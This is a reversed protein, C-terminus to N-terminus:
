ACIKECIESHELQKRLAPLTKDIWNNIEIDKTERIRKEFLMIANKHRSVLLSTFAKDFDSAPKASLEAVQEHMQEDLAPKLAIKRHAALIQLEQLEEQHAAEMALALEIVKANQSKKCALRGLEIDTLKIAATEILFESDREMSEANEALEVQVIKNNGNRIFNPKKETCSYFVTLSFISLLVILIIPITQIKKM